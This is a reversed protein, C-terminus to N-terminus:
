NTNTKKIYEEAERKAKAMKDEFSIKTETESFEIESDQDKIIEIWDNNFSKKSLFNVSDDIEIIKHPKLSITKKIRGETYSLVLTNNRKNRLKM